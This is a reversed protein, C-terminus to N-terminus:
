RAACSVPPQVMMDCILGFIQEQTPNALTRTGYYSLANLTSSQLSNDTIEQLLLQDSYKDTFFEVYAKQQACDSCKLAYRYELVTRGLRVAYDKQAATLAYNVVSTAPLETQAQSSSGWAFSQVLGYAATSGLTLVILLISIYKKSDLKLKMDLAKM